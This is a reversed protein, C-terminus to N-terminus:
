AASRAVGPTYLEVAALARLKWYAALGDWAPHAPFWAWAPHDRVAAEPVPARVALIEVAVATLGPPAEPIVGAMDPVGRRAADRGAGWLNVADLRSDAADRCPRLLGRRVEAEPRFVLADPRASM